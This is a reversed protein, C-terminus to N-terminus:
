RDDVLTCPDDMVMRAISLIQRVIYSNSLVM